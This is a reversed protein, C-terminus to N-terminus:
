HPPLQFPKHTRNKQEVIVQEIIVELIEKSVFCLVKLDTPRKIELILWEFYISYETIHFLYQTCIIYDCILYELQLSLKILYSSM